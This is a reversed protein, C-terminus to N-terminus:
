MPKNIEWYSQDDTMWPNSPGVGVLLPDWDVFTDTYELLGPIVILILLIVADLFCNAQRQAELPWNLCERFVWLEHLNSPQEFNIIDQQM